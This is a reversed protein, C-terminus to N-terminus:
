FESGAVAAETKRLGVIAARCHQEAAIPIEGRKKGRVLGDAHRLRQNQEARFLLFSFEQRADRVTFDRRERERFRRRNRGRLMCVCASGVASPLSKMRLPSFSQHVFPMLAPTITTIAFVGGFITLPFLSILDGGEDDFHVCRAHFHCM